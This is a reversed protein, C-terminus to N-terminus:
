FCSWEQARESIGLLIELRPPLYEPYLAYSTLRVHGEVLV